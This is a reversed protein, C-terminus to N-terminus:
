GAGVDIEQDGDGAPGEPTDDHNPDFYPDDHDYNGPEPLKSVNSLALV